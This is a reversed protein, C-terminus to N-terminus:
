LSEAVLKAPIKAKPVKVSFWERVDRDLGIGHMFNYLARRLGEGLADHNVGTPDEFTLDNEAFLGHESTKAPLIRIGFKAPDKGVPSHVTASFRHWFGSQLCEEKFLQRVVELSDVTEQATQTPFGYMLYAHVFVGAQHFARTVRSVQELTVGKNILALVRPSAVELGGTVALCGAKKMLACLEPTFTKDFRINGWWEYNRGRRVLEESLAKLIMPPAAEDVFHFGRSGTEAFLLDMKDAIESAKGAEYRGIYDLSTDCFSCKKWYCGHALTLKNWFFGSWLRTVPNLMEFMKVYDKVPLGSYTPTGSEPFPIDKLTSVKEFKVAGNERHFTRFLESKQRKGAFYELLCLLPREGDDLTIFDVYDFVRADKLSRLETNCYGGGLLVPIGRARIFQGMRLAGYVTGSFPVSLGVVDPKENELLEQTIELLIQDVVTPEKELEERLLDFSPQSAALKEGYRSFEFRPDVGLKIYDALDDLYLSALHQAQDAENMELFQDLLPGEEQLPM